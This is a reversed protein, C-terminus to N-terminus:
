DLSKLLNQFLLEVLYDYGENLYVEEEKLWVMVSNSDKFFASQTEKPLSFGFRLSLVLFGSLYLM